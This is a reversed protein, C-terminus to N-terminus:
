APICRKRRPSALDTICTTLCCPKALPRPPRSIDRIPRRARSAACCPIGCTGILRWRGPLVIMGRGELVTAGPAKVAKGVAVIEGNKLHVDGGPIDGLSSDMTMVYANRLVIEGRAPLTGGPGHARRDKKPQASFAPLGTLGTAAFAAM